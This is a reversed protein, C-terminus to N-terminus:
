LTLTDRVQLNAVTRHSRWVVRHLDASPVPKRIDPLIAAVPPIQAQETQVSVPRCIRLCPEDSTGIENPAVIAASHYILLLPILRRM